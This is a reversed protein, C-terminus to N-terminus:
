LLLSRIKQFPQSVFPSIYDLHRLIYSAFEVDPLLVANPNFTVAM